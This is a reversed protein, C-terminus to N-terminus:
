RRSRNWLGGGKEFSEHKRPVDNGGVIRFDVVRVVLESDM